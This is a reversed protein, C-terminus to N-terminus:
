PRKAAGVYIKLKPLAKQLASVGAKTIQNYSLHTEGLNKLKAMEKLGADTIRTSTLGLHFLNRLTSIEKLGKDTVLSQYLHLYTLNELKAVEKIGTDTIRSNEPSLVSNLNLLTLKKLKAVDKLGVDTISTSQLDLGTLNKLKAVEKLGVDTIERHGRLDIFHVKALDESTLKGEPKKLNKRIAQEVSVNQPNDPDSVWSTTGCGVLAVVACILLVHKM